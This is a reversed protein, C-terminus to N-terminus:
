SSQPAGSAPLPTQVSILRSPQPNSSRKTFRTSSNRQSIRNPQVKRRPTMSSWCPCQLQSDKPARKCAELILPISDRDKLMALAAAAAAEVHYSPALLGRRLLPIARPDGTKALLGLKIPFVSDNAANAMKEPSLNHAKAWAAFEPSVQGPVPKGEADFAIPSPVDSEIVERAQEVAFNWYTEDRDGLKVLESAIWAKTDVDQSQVFLDKLIPIAREPGAEKVIQDVYAWNDRKVEDIAVALNDQEVAGNPKALQNQTTQSHSSGALMVCWLIVSLFGWTTRRLEIMGPTLLKM